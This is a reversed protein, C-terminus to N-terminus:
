TTSVVELWDSFRILLEMVDSESNNFAAFRWMGAHLSDITICDPHRDFWEQVEATRADNLKMDGSIAELRWCMQYQTAVM